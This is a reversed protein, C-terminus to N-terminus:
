LEEETRREILEIPLLVHGLPEAVNTVYIACADAVDQPNGRMSIFPYGDTDFITATVQTRRAV